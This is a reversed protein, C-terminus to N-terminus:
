GESRYFGVILEQNGDGLVKTSKIIQGEQLLSSLYDINELHEEDHANITIKVDKDGDLYNKAEEIGEPPITESNFFATYNDNAICISIQIDSINMFFTNVGLEFNFSAEGIEILVSDPGNENEFYEILNIPCDTMGLLPDMVGESQFELSVEVGYKQMVEFLHIVEGANSERMRTVGTTEYDSKM